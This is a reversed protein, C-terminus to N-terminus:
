SPVSAGARLTYVPNFLALRGRHRAVAGEARITAGLEIGAVERRGNFVLSVNGTDDTVVVELLAGSGTPTARLTTVRGEVRV